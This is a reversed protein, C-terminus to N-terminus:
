IRGTQREVGGAESTLSVVDYNGVAIADTYIHPQRSPAKDASRVAASFPERGLNELLSSMWSETDLFSWKTQPCGQAGQNWVCSVRAFVICCALKTAMAWYCWWCHLSQTFLHHNHKTIVWHTQAPHGQFQTIDRNSTSLDPTPTILMLLRKVFLKSQWFTPNHNASAQTNDLWSWANM